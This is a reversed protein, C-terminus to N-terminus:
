PAGDFPVESRWSEVPQTAASYLADAVHVPDFASGPALVGNVTVSVARIGDPALAGDLATVLNRLGAKQVGVSAAQVWPVDAARSGTAIVRAGERMLPRAAQVATLLGAVGVRLDALLEDPTLELPDKMTTLSPNYHLVDIQGGLEAFRELAARLAAEDAVDAVACDVTIDDARLGEALQELAQANRGVLGVAYGKVGFRHAVAAGVGPGAGVVVIVRGAM